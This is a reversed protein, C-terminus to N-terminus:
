LFASISRGTSIYNGFFDSSEHDFDTYIDLIIGRAIFVSVYLLFFIEIFRMMMNANRWGWGAYPNWTWSSFLYKVSQLIGIVTVITVLTNM